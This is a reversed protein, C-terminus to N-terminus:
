RVQVIEMRYNPYDKSAKQFLSLAQAYSFCRYGIISHRAKCKIIWVHAKLSFLKDLENQSIATENSM